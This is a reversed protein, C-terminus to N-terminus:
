GGYAGGPGLAPPQPPPQPLRPTSSRVIESHALWRFLTFHYPAPWVRLAVAPISGMTLFVAAGDCSSMRIDGFWLDIWQHQGQVSFRRNTLYMRGAEVLRYRPAAEAEARQRRVRNGFMSGMTLAIGVAGTGFASTHWYSGDGELYQLVQTNETGFCGEGPQMHFPAPIEQPRWGSSLADALRDAAAIATEREQASQQWYWDNM